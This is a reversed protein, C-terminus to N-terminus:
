EKYFSHNGYAFLLELNQSHWSEGSCSEFYLAGESGDWESILELAEYCEQDPEAAGLRGDTVTSFQGDQYIVEAVTDPFSDSEVRNLVVLMVLAKGKTGEGEAEAEAIKMLLEDEETLIEEEEAQAAIEQMQEDLGILPNFLLLSTLLLGTM